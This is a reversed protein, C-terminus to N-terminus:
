AQLRSLWPLMCSVVCHVVWFLVSMSVWHAKFHFQECQCQCIGLSWFFFFLTKGTWKLGCSWLCTRTRLEVFKLLRPGSDCNDLRWRQWAVSNFQVEEPRWGENRECRFPDPAGASGIRSHPEFLVSVGHSSSFFSFICSVYWKRLM